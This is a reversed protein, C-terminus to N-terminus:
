TDVTHQNELIQDQKLLMIIHAQLFNMAMTRVMGNNTKLIDMYLIFTTGM